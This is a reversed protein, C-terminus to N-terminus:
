FGIHIHDYHDALAFSPGGLDFLSILESPQLEDPLALVHRLVQETIGGPNQHGTIPTGNVASIDVARGFAHLSPNGSSTLFSHGQILCSVTVSDYSQALYLLVALVRVDVRGAAIDDRGGAYIDLQPSHLVRDGLRGKVANM